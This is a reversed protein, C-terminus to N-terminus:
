CFVVEGLRNRNLLLKKEFVGEEMLVRINPNQYIDEVSEGHVTALLSCGSYVAQHIASTDDATGIEDVAIVEPSFARLMMLIGDSKRVGDLVDTHTGVDNQPVGQYCAAIESREDVVSVNLGRNSVQRVIDRLLTTKGCKPPSIILTNKMTHKDWLQEIINDAAGEVSHAMRINLFTIYSLSKIKGNEVVAQGSFGIRHGGQITLYGQRIEEEYAYLSYNSIYSVIERLIDSSAIVPKKDIELPRERGEYRLFVPSGVRVRVEQLQNKSEIMQRFSERWAKPFVWLISQMKIVM